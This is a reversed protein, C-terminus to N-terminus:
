NHTSMLDALTMEQKSSSNQLPTARLTDSSPLKLELVRIAPANTSSSQMQEQYKLIDPGEKFMLQYVATMIPGNCLEILEKGDIFDFHNYKLINIDLYPKVSMEKLLIEQDEKTSLIDSGGRVIILGKSKIRSLDYAPPRSMKYRKQNEAAGYDYMGFRKGVYLQIFQKLSKISTSKFFRSFFNPAMEGVGKGGIGNVLPGCIMETLGKISCLNRMSNDIVDIVPQPLHSYHIFDPVLDVPALIPIAMGKIHGVYAVPALTVAAVLKDSYQPAVSLLAFLFLTSQSYGVYVLKKSNTKILVFDILMPLDILAQDDLSFDWFKRLKMLSTEADLKHNKNNTGRADFLWVDFNNNSFMFPLSFDSASTENLNLGEGSTENGFKITPKGLAPKRPVANESRSIM